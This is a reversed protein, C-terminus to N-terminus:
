PAAVQAAMPRPWDAWDSAAGRRRKIPQLPQPWRALQNDNRYEVLSPATPHTTYNTEAYETEEIPAPSDLEFAAAAAMNARAWIRAANACVRGRPLVIRAVQAARDCYVCM